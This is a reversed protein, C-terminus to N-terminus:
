VEGFFSNYYDLSPRVTLKSNSLFSDSCIKIIRFYTKPYKVIM